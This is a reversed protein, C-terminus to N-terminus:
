FNFIILIKSKVGVDRLNLAEDVSSVGFFDVGCQELLTASVLDGHGYANAKVIAMIKTTSPILKKIEEVNHKMRVLDIEIWARTKNELM